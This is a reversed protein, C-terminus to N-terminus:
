NMMVQTPTRTRFQVPIPPFTVAGEDTVQGDFSDDDTAGLDSSGANDFVTGDSLSADDAQVSDLLPLGQAVSDHVDKDPLSSGGCGLLIGAMSLCVIAPSHLTSVNM